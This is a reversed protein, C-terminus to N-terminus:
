RSDSSADSTAWHLCRRGQIEAGTALVTCVLIYEGATYILGMKLTSVGVTHEWVGHGHLSLDHYVNFIIAYM